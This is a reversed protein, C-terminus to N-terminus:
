STWPSDSSSRALPRPRPSRSPARRLAHPLDAVREIQYAWKTMSEVMRVMDGWLLPETLSFRGDQQGATVLLPAATKAADYLMGM